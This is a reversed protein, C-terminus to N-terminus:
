HLWSALRQEIERELDQKDRMPLLFLRLQVPLDAQPNGDNQQRQNMDDIRDRLYDAAVIAETQVADVYDATVATHTGTATSNYTVFVPVVLRDFIAEIRQNPRLLEQLQEFHPHTRDLKSGVIAYENKLYDAGLHKELDRGVARLGDKLDTYFKAEGFWLELGADDAHVCHVGDFGKYTDSDATKFVVKHVVTSSGYFERCIAHLLIEAPVGRVRGNGFTARCARRLREMAHMHDLDREDPRLAFDPVWDIINQALAGARWTRMEYGVGVSALPLDPHNPLDVHFVLVSSPFSRASCGCARALDVAHATPHLLDRGAPEVSM